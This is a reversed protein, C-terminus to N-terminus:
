IKLIELLFNKIGLNENQRVLCRVGITDFYVLIISSYKRREIINIVSHSMNHPFMPSYSSTYKYQTIFCFQCKGRFNLFNVLSAIVMQTRVKITWISQIIWFRLITDFM